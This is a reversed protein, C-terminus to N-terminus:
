ARWDTTKGALPSVHQSIPKNCTSGYGSQPKIEFRLLEEIVSGPAAAGSIRFCRLPKLRDAGRQRLEELLDIAHTPVGVLYSAGTEALRDILSAGRPLGHV